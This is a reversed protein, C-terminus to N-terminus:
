VETQDAVGTLPTHLRQQQLEQQALLAEVWRVLNERNKFSVARIGQVDPLCVGVLTGTDTQMEEGMIQQINEWGQLYDALLLSHLFM